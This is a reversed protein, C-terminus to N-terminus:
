DFSKKSKKRAPYCFGGGSYWYWRVGLSTMLSSFGTEYHWRTSFLNRKIIKHCM